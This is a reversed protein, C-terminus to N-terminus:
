SFFCPPGKHQDGKRPRQDEIQGDNQGQPEHALPLHALHLGALQHHRDQDRRHGGDGHLVDVDGEGVTQHGHQRQDRRLHEDGGQRQFAAPQPLQEGALGNRHDAAAPQVLVGQFLEPEAGVVQQLVQPEVANEVQPLHLKGLQLGVTLEAHQEAAAVGGGGRRLQPLLDRLRQGHM